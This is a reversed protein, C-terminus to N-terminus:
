RPLITNPHAVLMGIVVYSIVVLMGLLLPAVRYKFIDTRRQARQQVLVAVIIMWIVLELFGAAIVAYFSFGFLLLINVAVFWM